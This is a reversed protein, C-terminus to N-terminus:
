RACYANPLVNSVCGPVKAGGEIVQNLSSKTKEITVFMSIKKELM